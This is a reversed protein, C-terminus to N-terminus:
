LNEHLFVLQEVHEPLLLERRSSVVNGATSFLRESRAQTAPISLYKKAVRALAPYLRSGQNKWWKLPNESRPLVPTGLYDAVQRPVSDSASQQVVSSSLSSFVGRLPNAPPKEMDPCAPTKACDEVM